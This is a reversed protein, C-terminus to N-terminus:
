PATAAREHALAICGLQIRLSGLDAILDHVERYAERMAPDGSRRFADLALLARCAHRAVLDVGHDLQQLQGTHVHAGLPGQCGRADTGPRPTQRAM